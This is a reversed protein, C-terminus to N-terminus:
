KIYKQMKSVHMYTCYAGPLGLHWSHADSAISNSKQITKHWEPHATRGLSTKQSLLPARLQQALGWAETLKCKLALFCFLHYAAFKDLVPNIITSIQPYLPLLRSLM